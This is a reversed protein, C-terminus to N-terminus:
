DNWRSRPSCAGGGDFNMRFRSGAAVPNKGADDASIPFRLHVNGRRIFKVGSQNRFDVLILIRKVVKPVEHLRILFSKLFKGPIARQLGSSSDM